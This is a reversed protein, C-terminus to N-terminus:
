GDAPRAGDAAPPESFNFVGSRLAWFEPSKGTFMTIERDTGYIFVPNDANKSHRIAQVLTQSGEPSPYRDPANITISEISQLAESMAARIGYRQHSTEFILFCPAIAIANWFESRYVSAGFSMGGPFQGNYSVEYATVSKQM